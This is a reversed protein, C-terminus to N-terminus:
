TTLPKGVLAAVGALTFGVMWKLLAVDGELRTLRPDLGDLRTEIGDLRTERVAVAEAARRASAESAGAERLAECVESLMVAM